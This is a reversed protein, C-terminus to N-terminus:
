PKLETPEWRIKASGLVTGTAFAIDIQAIQYDTVARVENSRADALRIQADQVENSINLGQEFRRQEAALVRAAVVVSQRAALVRQWAANLNDVADLM